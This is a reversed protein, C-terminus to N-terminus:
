CEHKQVADYYMKMCEYMDTVLDLDNVEDPKIWVYDKHETLRISIDPYASVRTSFMYYDFDGTRSHGQVYLKKFFHLEAPEVQLGTEERIERMMAQELSEGAKVKGTPMGWKDGESTNEIRHLLLIKDECEVICSVVAFQSAFNEPQTIYIM